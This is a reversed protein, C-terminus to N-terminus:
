QQLLELEGIEEIDGRDVAMADIMESKRANALQKVKVKAERARIGVETIKAAREEKSLNQTGLLSLKDVEKVGPIIHEASVEVYTDAMVKVVLYYGKLELAKLKLEELKKKKVKEKRARAAESKEQKARDGLAKTTTATTSFPDVRSRDMDEVFDSLQTFFAGLEDLKECFGQLHKVCEEVIEKVQAMTAKSSLLEALKLQMANFEQTTKLDERLRNNLRDEAEFLAQQAMRLRQFRMEARSVGPTKNSEKRAEEAKKAADIGTAIINSITTETDTVKKRWVPGHDKVTKSTDSGVNREDKVVKKIERAVEKVPNLAARVQMSVATREKSFQDSLYEIQKLIYQINNTSQGSLTDWDVGAYEDPGVTLLRALEHIVPALREAMAYGSDQKGLPDKPDPVYYAESSSHDGPSGAAATQLVTGIPNAFFKLTSIATEVIAFGLERWGGSELSKEAQTYERQRHQLQDRYQQTQQKSEDVLTSKQDVSLKQLEAQDSLDKKKSGLDDDKEVCAEYIAKAYEGWEGVRDRLANTDQMCAQSSRKLIALQDPLDLEVLDDDEVAELIMDITGDPECIAQAVMSIKKMKAEADRFTNRGLDSCHVLNARLSKCKLGADDPFMLLAALPDSALVFCQALRGLADPAAGLLAGWNSQALVCQAVSGVFLNRGAATRVLRILETSQLGKPVESPEDGSSFDNAEETGNPVYSHAQADDYDDM